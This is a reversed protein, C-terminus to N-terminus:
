DGVVMLLQSEYLQLLQLIRIRGGGKERDKEEEGLGRGYTELLGM